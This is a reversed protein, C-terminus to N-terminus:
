ECHAGLVSVRDRPWWQSACLLQTHRNQSACLVPSLFFNLGQRRQEKSEM